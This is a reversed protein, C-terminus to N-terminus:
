IEQRVDFQSIDLKRSNSGMNVVYASFITDAALTGSPLGEDITDILEGSLYFEAKEDPYFLVKGSITEDGEIDKLKVLTEDDGDGVSGFFEDDITKFGIHPNDNGSGSDIAAIVDNNVPTNFCVSFERYKDWSLGYPDFGITKCIEEYDYLTSGTSLIVYGLTEHIYVNNTKAYGDISEFFTSFIAMNVKEPTVAGNKIKDSVVSDVVHDIIESAKHSQLSQGAGLHAEESENHETILRVIADEITENDVQSKALLGWTPAAM